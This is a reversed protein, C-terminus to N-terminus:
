QGNYNHLIDRLQEAAHFANEHCIWAGLHELGGQEQTFPLFEFYLGAGPGNNVTVNFAIEQGLRPLIVRIMQIADYWGRAVATLEAVNLDHLYRKRWDRVLLMMDYPRRMFYPVLLVAAGYDRLLLAEPNERRLYAAFPEGHRQQFRWNDRFKRPLINSFVIQQHGHALSGGVRRGYNKIMAVYGYTPRAASSGLSPPMLGKAGYLLKGELAALRELVVVRDALPMNHWDKDHYSSTWQLFHLGYGVQGHVTLPEATVEVTEVPALQEPASVVPYLNKNIFTFGQSLEAVDLVGTTNGACIPCDEEAAEEPENDHPRAGRVASYTIRTGDRPDIQYLGDPAHAVLAEGQEFLAFLQGVSLEVLSRAELVQELEARTFQQM